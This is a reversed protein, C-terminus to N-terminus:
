LSYLFHWASIALRSGPKLGGAGYRRKYADKRVRFDKEEELVRRTCCAGESNCGPRNQTTLRELVFGRELWLGRERLARKMGKPKGALELNHYDPPPLPRGKGHM